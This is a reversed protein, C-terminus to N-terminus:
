PARPVLERREFLDRATQYRSVHGDFRGTVRRRLELTERLQPVDDAALELDLAHEAGASHPDDEGGAVDLETLLDGDLHQAAVEGDPRLRHAPKEALGTRRDVELAGVHDAHHVDARQFVTERVHHHLVQRPRVEAIEELLALRQRDCLRDVVHELPHFGDGLRVPEAEDMAVQLRRVEKERRLGVPRTEHLHEVEADGLRGLGASIPRPVCPERGRRGDHARRHVHRGLLKAARLVDVRAGVDPGEADDQVLEDAPPKGELVLRDGPQARPNRGIRRYRQALM